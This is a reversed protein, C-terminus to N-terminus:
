IIRLSDFRQFLAPLLSANFNRPLRVPLSPLWPLRELQRDIVPWARSEYGKEVFVEMVQGQEELPTKVMWSPSSQDYRHTGTFAVVLAVLYSMDRRERTADPEDRYVISPAFAHRRDSDYVYFAHRRMHPAGERDSGACIAQLTMAGFDLVRLRHAKEWCQRLHLYDADFHPSECPVAVLGSGPRLGPETWLGAVSTPAEGQRGDNGRMFALIPASEILSRKMNYARVPKLEIAASETTVNPLYLEDYRAYGYNRLPLPALTEYEFIVAGGTPKAADKMIHALLITCPHSLTLGFFKSYIDLAGSGKDKSPNVRAHFLTTKTPLTFRHHSAYEQRGDQPVFERLM